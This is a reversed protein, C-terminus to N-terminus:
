FRVYGFRRQVERENRDPDIGMIKIGGSDKAILTALIKILTTMGAGNPGLIALIENEHLTLDVGMLVHHDGYSKHINVAELYIEMDM